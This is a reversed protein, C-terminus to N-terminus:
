RMDPVLLWSGELSRHKDGDTSELRRSVLTGSGIVTM